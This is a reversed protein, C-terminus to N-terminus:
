KLLVLVKKAGEDIDEKLGSPPYDHISDMIIKYSYKFYAGHQTGVDHVIFKNQKDNYGLIVLNHYYPGGNSFHKNERYLTKGNAPIIVPINQSLYTKIQEITPNEIIKPQLKLYNQGIQFLQSTNISNGWGQGV